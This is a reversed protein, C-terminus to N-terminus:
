RRWGFLAGVFSILVLSGCFAVVLDIWRIPVREALLAPTPLGLATYVVGGIVAGLFGLVVSSLFGMRRGRVLIGALRGAVAGVILWTALQTLFSVQITFQITQDNPVTTVDQFALLFPLM